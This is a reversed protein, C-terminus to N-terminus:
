MLAGGELHSLATHLVHTIADERSRNARYAFQLPDLTPPLMSILLEKVLKEFCKSAVSTLAIPRWDNLTEVKQQKPIPIIISSKFCAPYIRHSLSLNYIETFVGSLQHACVKLVRGPIGDPGVTKRPNINMFARRVDAEKITLPCGVAATTAPPHHPPVTYSPIDTPVPSHHPIKTVPSPSPNIMDSPTRVSPDFRAYFSNLEDPFTPSTNTTPQKKGKFETVAQLGQWLHRPNNTDLKSEM